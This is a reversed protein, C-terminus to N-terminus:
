PIPEGIADLQGAVAVLSIKLHDIARETPVDVVGHQDLKVTRLNNMKNQIKDPEHSHAVQNRLVNMAWLVSWMNDIHQGYSLSLCINAKAAFMLRNDETIYQPNSVSAAIFDNM